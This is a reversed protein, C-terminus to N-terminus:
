IDKFFKPSLRHRLARSVANPSKADGIAAIVKEEPVVGRLAQVVHCIAVQAKDFSYRPSVEGGDRLARMDNVKQRNYEVIVKRLREM